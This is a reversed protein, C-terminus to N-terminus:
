ARYVKDFARLLYKVRANRQHEPLASALKLAAAHKSAAEGDSIM